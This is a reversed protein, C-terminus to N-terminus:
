GAHSHPFRQWCLNSPMSWRHSDSGPRVVCRSTRQSSQNRFSGSAGRRSIRPCAESWRIRMTQQLSAQGRLVSLRLAQCVADGIIAPLCREWKLRTDRNSRPKGAFFALASHRGFRTALIAPLRAGVPETITQAQWVSADSERALRAGVPSATNQPLPAQGRHVFGRLAQWVPDGIDRALVAGVPETITQAQWVSADSERALRARVPSATNQPLPAQGRHVIVRLAQCVADGIDRALVAGM